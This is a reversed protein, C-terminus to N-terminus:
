LPTAVPRASLTWHQAWLQGCNAIIVKSSTKGSQSGKAEMAKVVEIGEVVKGFVVHKGDLRRSSADNVGVLWLDQHSSLLATPEQLNMAHWPVRYM